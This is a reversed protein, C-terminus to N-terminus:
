RAFSCRSLVFPHSLKGFPANKNAFRVMRAGTRRHKPFRKLRGGILVIRRRRIGLLIKQATKCVSTYKPVISVQPKILAVTFRLTLVVWFGSSMAFFHGWFRCFWGSSYPHPRDFIGGTCLTSWAACPMPTRARNPCPGKTEHIGQDALQSLQQVGDRM